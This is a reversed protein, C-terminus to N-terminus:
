RALVSFLYRLEDDVEEQSCVTDAIEARLIERYRRRLRHVASKMASETTGLKEALATYPQETREGVLCPHLVEFLAAKGESSYAERVRGLVNELLTLAWRREYIQEPTEENVPEREYQSDGTDCHLSIPNNGGGRKQAHRKDWQDSLFYKLSTLLFSRFRGKEQNARAVRNDRILYTFFEQTLDQCDESDYGRSRVYSYVPTWYRECLQELAARSLPEDTCGASRVLSWHTTRFWGHRSGTGSTSM